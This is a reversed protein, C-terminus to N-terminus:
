WPPRAIKNTKTPLNLITARAQYHQFKGSVIYSILISALFFYAKDANRMVFYGNNIIWSIMNILWYLLLHAHDIPLDPLDPRSVTIDAICYKMYPFLPWTAWSAKYAPCCGQLFRPPQLSGKSVFHKKQYIQRFINIILHSTKPM